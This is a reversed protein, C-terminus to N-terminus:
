KKKNSHYLLYPLTYQLNKLAYKSMDIPNTEIAKQEKFFNGSLQYAKPKDKIKRKMEFTNKLKLPVDTESTNERRFNSFEGLLNNYDTNKPKNFGNHCLSLFKEQKKNKKEYDVGFGGNGTRNFSTYNTTKTVDTGKVKHSQPRIIKAKPKSELAATDHYEKDFKVLNEPFNQLVYRKLNNKQPNKLIQTLTFPNDPNLNRFVNDSFSDEPTRANLDIGLDEKTKEYNQIFKTSINDIKKKQQKSAKDYFTDLKEVLNNKQDQDILNVKKLVYDAEQLTNTESSKIHCCNFLWLNNLDDKIYEAIFKTIKAQYFAEIYHVVKFTLFYAYDILNKRKLEQEFLLSERDFFNMDKEETQPRLNTLFCIEKLARKFLDKDKEREYIYKM